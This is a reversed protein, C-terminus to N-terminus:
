QPLVELTAAYSARRQPTTDPAPPRAGGISASIYYMGASPWKVNVQGQADTVIRQENLQQRYRIGGPIVSVTVGEAPKGDLLFRFKAEDGAFLDNPHTVPVLELGEGKPALGKESPKGSTVFTEVRGISRTIVLEKADAPVEKTLTEETGRWRKTEGNLKYTAAVGKNVLAIKYTGKQSLKVDFVSRHKGQAKNEANVTSGDPALVVLDDLKPGNHDFNFLDNSVAADVTVWPESGSLVTAAPLLWARHAHVVSPTAACLALAAALGQLKFTHKM